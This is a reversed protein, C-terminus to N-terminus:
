VDVWCLSSAPVSDDEEKPEGTKVNGDSSRMALTDAVPDVSYPLTIQEGNEDNAYVIGQESSLQM